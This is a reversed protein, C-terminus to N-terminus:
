YVGCGATDRNRKRIRQTTRKKVKEGNEGTRYPRRIAIESNRDDLLKGEKKAIDNYIEIMEDTTYQCDHYLCIDHENSLAIAAEKTDTQYSPVKQVGYGDCEKCAIQKNDSFLTGEGKCEPCDIKMTGEVIGDLSDLWEKFPIKTM